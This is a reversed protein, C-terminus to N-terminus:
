EGQGDAAVKLVLAPDVRVDGVNMRWDLHPGNARGTMGVTGVVAGKAVPQGAKVAVSDLHMLTSSVGYGHDIIILGGELLFDPEALKVIGAAPAKVPTGIPAAYDVGYHPWGPVGNLIRQSGYVGSIRAGEVPVIFGEAWAAHDGTTARAAAVMAREQDRRAKEAEPIVVTRQPVGDVRDISFQRKAIAFRHIQSQGKSEVRLMIEGDDDRGIGFAFLGDPTLRLAAGNLSVQAGVEVRGILFGGQVVAGRLDLAHAPLAALLLGLFASLYKMM